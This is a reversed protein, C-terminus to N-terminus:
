RKIQKFSKKGFGGFIVLLIVVFGVIALIILFIALPNAIGTFFMGTGEGAQVFVGFLGSDSVYKEALGEYTMLVNLIVNGTFVSTVKYDFFHYKTAEITYPDYEYIDTANKYFDLYLTPTVTGNSVVEHLITEDLSNTILLSVEEEPVAIGNVWYRGYLEGASVVLLSKNVSTNQLEVIGNAVEVNTSLTEFDSDIATLNGAVIELYVGIQNNSQKQNNIQVNSFNSSDIYYMTSTTNRIDNNDFIVDIFPIDYLYIGDVAGEIYNNRITVNEIIDTYGIDMAEKVTNYFENGEIISNKIGLDLPYRNGYFKNDKILVNDISKYIDIFEIGNWNIDHIENGEFVLQSDLYTETFYIGHSQTAQTSNIINDKFTINTWNGYVWLIDNNWKTPCNKQINNNEIVSHNLFVLFDNSEPVDSAFLYCGTDDINLNNNRIIIKNREGSINMFNGICNQNEIVKNDTTILYCFTSNSEKDIGNMTGNANLYVYNCNSGVNINSITPTAYSLAGDCSGTFNLNTASTLAHLSGTTNEYVSDLAIYSQGIGSNYCKLEDTKVYGVNQYWAVCNLGANDITVNTITVGDCNPYLYIGHSDVNTIMTDKITNGSNSSHLQIGYIDCDSIDLNKFHFTNSGGGTRVCERSVNYIKNDYFYGTGDLYVRAHEFESANIWGDTGGNVDFYQLKFDFWYDGGNNTVKSNSMRLYDGYFSYEFKYQENSTINFKLTVNDFTVNGYQQVFVNGNLIITQDSCDQPSNTENIFWDSSSPPNCVAFSLSLVSFLTLFLLMLKNFKMHYICCVNKINNDERLDM